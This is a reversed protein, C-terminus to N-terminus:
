WPLAPGEGVGVPDAALGGALGPNGSALLFDGVNSIRDPSVGVYLLKLLKCLRLELFNFCICCGFSM